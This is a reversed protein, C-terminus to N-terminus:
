AAEQQQRRLWARDRDVQRTDLHLLEAIQSRSIGRASLRKVAERREAHTLPVPWGGMAREVAVEDVVEPLDWPMAAPDDINDGWAAPPPWDARSARRRTIQSPGPTDQLTDYAQDIQDHLRRSIRKTWGGRLHQLYHQDCGVEVAVAAASYGIRALAQLRRRAGVAPLSWPQGSRAANRRQCEYAACARYAQPCTCGSRMRANRTGHRSATCTQPAITTTM